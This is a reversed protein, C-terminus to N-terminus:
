RCSSTRGGPSAGSPRHAHPSAHGRTPAARRPASPTTAIAEPISISIASAYTIVAGGANARLWAMVAARNGNPMFDVAKGYRHQSPHGSGAIVAGPRCTSIVRVSGFRAELGALVSRTEGTLCARSASAGGHVHQHAHGHGRRYAHGYSRKTGRTRYAHRYSKYPAAYSSRVGHSGMVPDDSNQAHAPPASLTTAALLFALSTVIRM